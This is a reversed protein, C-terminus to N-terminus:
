TIMLGEEIEKEINEKKMFDSIHHDKMKKGFVKGKTTLNKTTIRTFGLKKNQLILLLKDM